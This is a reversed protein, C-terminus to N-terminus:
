TALRNVLFPLLRTDQYSFKRVTRGPYTITEAADIAKVCYWRNLGRYGSLQKTSPDMPAIDYCGVEWRQLHKNVRLSGPKVCRQQSWLWDALRPMKLGDEFNELLRELATAGLTSPPVRLYMPTITRGKFLELGCSEKYIRTPCSKSKNVVLGARQAVSIVYDYDKYHVIWDDGYAHWKFRCAYSLIGCSIATLVGFTLGCGMPAFAHLPAVRGDPLRAYESRASFLFERWRPLCMRVLLCSVHDSADSLDISCYDPDHLLTNHWEQDHLNVNHRFKTHLEKYLWSNVALQAFMGNAPESSVLRNSKISKPVEAVKTIGETYRTIPPLNVYDDVSSIYLTIPVKSPIPGDLSWKGLMNLGDATVGPGYSGTLREWSPPPELRLLSSTLGWVEHPELRVLGPSTFRKYVESFDTKTRPNGRFKYFLKAIQHILHVIIPDAEMISTSGYVTKRLVGIRFLNPCLDLSGSNVAGACLMKQWADVRSVYEARCPSFWNLIARADSDSLDYEKMDSLLSDYASAFLHKEDIGHTM